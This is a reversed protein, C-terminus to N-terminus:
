LSNLIDRRKKDFDDQTILKKNLLDKLVQLRDQINTSQSNTSSQKQIGASSTTTTSNIADMFTPVDKFADAPKDFGAAKVLADQFKLMWENLRKNFESSTNTVTAYSIGLNEYHINFKSQYIRGGSNTETFNIELVDTQVGGSRITKIESTACRDLGNRPVKIKIIKDGSCPDGSWSNAGSGRISVSVSQDMLWKYEKMRHMFIFPHNFRQNGFTIESMFNGYIKWDGDAAFIPYGAITDEPRVLYGKPTQPNFAEGV